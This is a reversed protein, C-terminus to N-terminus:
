AGGMSHMPSSPLEILSTLDATFRHTIHTIEVRFFTAQENLLINHLARQVLVLVKLTREVHIPNDDDTLQNGKM